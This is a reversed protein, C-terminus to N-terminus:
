GSILGLPRLYINELEIMETYTLSKTFVRYIDDKHELASLLLSKSSQHYISVPVTLGTDIPIDDTVGDVITDLFDEMNELNGTIFENISTMYREKEFTRGNSLNQIIKSLLIMTRQASRSPAAQLLGWQHPAAIAPGIYRLFVFSGAIVQLKQRSIDEFRENLTNTITQVFKSITGPFGSTVANFIKQALARLQYSNVALDAETRDTAKGPDVEMEMDFAEQTTTDVMKINLKRKGTSALQVENVIRALKQWLFQLGEMQCYVKFVRALLSDQRFMTNTDTIRNVENSSLLQILDAEHREYRYFYTLWAALRKGHRYKKGLTSIILGNYPKNLLLQGFLRVFDSLQSKQIGHDYRLSSEAETEGNLLYEAGFAIKYYNPPTLKIVDNTKRVAILISVIAIGGCITTVLLLCCCCIVFLIALGVGTGIAVNDEHQDKDTTNQIDNPSADCGPWNVTITDQGLEVVYVTRFGKNCNNRSIRGTAMGAESIIGLEYISDLVRQSTLQGTISELVRSFFRGTIYGMFQLQSASGTSMFDQAIQLESNVPPASLLYKVGSQYVPEVLGLIYLNDEIRNAIIEDYDDRYIVVVNSFSVLESNLKPSWEQALEILLEDDTILEFEGQIDSMAGFLQDYVTPFLRIISDSQDINNPRVSWISTNGTDITSLDNTQGILGLVQDIETLESALSQLDTNASNYELLTAGRGNFTLQQQEYDLAERIGLNIVQNQDTNPQVNGIVLPLPQNQPSATCGPWTVIDKQVYLSPAGVVPQLTNIYIAHAGQNCCPIISDCEDIFPGVIQDGIISLSNRYIAAQISSANFESAPITDVIGALWQIALYSHIESTGPIFGFPSAESILNPDYLQLDRQLMGILTDQPQTENTWTPTSSVALVGRTNEESSLIFNLAGTTSQASPVILITNNTAEFSRLQPIFSVTGAIDTTLIIAEPAAAVIDLVDAELVGVTYERYIVLRRGLAQLTQNVIDPINGPTGYYGIRSLELNVTLYSIITAVEEIESALLNIVNPNDNVDRLSDTIDLPALLPKTFQEETMIDLMTVGYGLCCPLFYMSDNYLIDRLIDRTTNPDNNDNVYTFQLQYERLINDNVSQWAVNHIRAIYEHFPNFPAIDPWPFKLSINVPPDQFERTYVLICM